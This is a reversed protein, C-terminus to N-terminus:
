PLVGSISVAFGDGTLEPAIRLAHEDDGAGGSPATLYLVLGTALAAVGAGVLVTSVNGYTSAKDSLRNAQMTLAPDDCAHDDGCLSEAEDLKGKALFGFVVGGIAMAAGTGGIVLGLTKRGGGGRRPAEPLPDDDPPPGDEDPPPPEDPVEEAPLTELVPVSLSAPEGKDHGRDVLVTASWARHGPANAEITYTGVDTPVASDWLAADVSQGNRTIALGDVRSAVPVSITLYSLKSELKRARKRATKELADQQLTRAESAAKLFLAWSSALQGNRERCDALNVVTDLDHSARESAEFKDCADAVKGKKLLEKGERFLLEAEVDGDQARAPAAVLLVSLTVVITVFREGMPM